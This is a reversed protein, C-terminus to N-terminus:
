IAEKMRARTKVKLKSLALVSPKLEEPMEKYGHRNLTLLEARSILMLNSLECNNKDGDKFAIIMNDPVPGHAQEWVYRHKHIFRTPCGTHPNRKLVKVEIFGDKSTRESGIPRTNAPLHGTKFNGSNPKMVGKTGANWSKNGKEFQGTLGSSINHNKTYATYQNMKIDLGFTENLLKLMEARSRGKCERRVFQNQEKTLLTRRQTVLRDKGKRGCRIKHNKLASRISAETKDLNFHDNFAITLDRLNMSMYASRLFDLYEATFIFRSM